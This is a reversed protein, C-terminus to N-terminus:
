FTLLSLLIFLLPFGLPLRASSSPTPTTAPTTCERLQVDVLGTMMMKNLASAFDVM